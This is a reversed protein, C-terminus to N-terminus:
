GFIDLDVKIDVTMTVLKVCENRSNTVCNRRTNGVSFDAFKKPDFSRINEFENSFRKRGCKGYGYVTPRVVESNECEHQDGILVCTGDLDGFPIKYPHSDDCRKQCMPWWRYPDPRNILIRWQNPRLCSGRELFTECEFKDTDENYVAASNDQFCEKAAKKYRTPFDQQSKIATSLILLFITTLHMKTYKQFSAPM